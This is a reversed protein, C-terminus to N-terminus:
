AQSLRKPSVVNWGRDDMEVAHFVRKVIDIGSSMADRAENAEGGTACHFNVGIQFENHSM